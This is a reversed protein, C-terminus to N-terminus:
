LLISSLVETGEEPGEDENKSGGDPGEFSGESDWGEIASSFCVAEETEDSTGPSLDSGRCCRESRDEFRGETVDEEEEGSEEEEEEEKRM